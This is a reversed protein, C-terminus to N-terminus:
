SAKGLAALNKKAAADLKAKAAAKTAKAMKKPNTETVEDCIDRAISLLYDVEPRGLVTVQGTRVTIEEGDEEKKAKAKASEGLVKVMVAQTAERALVPDVGSETLPSYIFREFTLRSRISMKLGIESLSDRGEFRRWHRKLCQSSIRTRTKGGFPIRKAFGADDRNLLAAPYSTLTHIQLFRHPM